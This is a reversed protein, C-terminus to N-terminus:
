LALAAAVEGLGQRVEGVHQALARRHLELDPRHRGFGLSRGPDDAGQGEDDEPQDPEDVALIHLIEEDILPQDDGAADAQHPHSEAGEDHGPHDIELNLPYLTPWVIMPTSTTMTPLMREAMAVKATRTAM